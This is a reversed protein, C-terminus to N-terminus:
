YEGKKQLKKAIKVLHEYEEKSFIKQMKEPNILVFEPNERIFKRSNEEPDKPPWGGTEAYIVVEYGDKPSKLAKEKLEKTIPYFVAGGHDKEIRIEYKGNEEYVIFHDGIYEKVDTKNYNELEDEKPWRKNELYFMVELADKDSKRSKVALEESVEFDFFEKGRNWVIRLGLEDNIISHYKIKEFDM